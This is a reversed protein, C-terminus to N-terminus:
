KTHGRITLKGKSIEIDDLVVDGQRALAESVARNLAGTLANSVGSPLPLAGFKAKTVKWAPQGESTVWVQFVLYGDVKLPGQTIRGYVRVEGDDLVVIPNELPVKAEGEALAQIVVANLQEQTLTVEFKGTTKAQEMAQEWSSRAEEALQRAQTGSPLPTAGALDQASPSSPYLILAGLAVLLVLLVLLAIGLKKM